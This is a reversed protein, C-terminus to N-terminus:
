LSSRQNLQIEKDVFNFLTHAINFPRDAYYNENRLNLANESWYIRIIIIYDLMLTECM